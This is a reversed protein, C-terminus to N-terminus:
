AVIVIRAGCIEAAETEVTVVGGYSITAIFIALAVITGLASQVEAVWFGVDAGVHCPVADWLIGTKADKVDALRADPAHLVVLLAIVTVSTRWVVMAVLGRTLTYVGRRNRASGTLFNVRHGTLADDLCAIVARGTSVIGTFGVHPTDMHRNHLTSTRSIMLTIVTVSTSRICAAQVLTACAGIWRNVAIILVGAGHVVACHVFTALMFLPTPAAPIRAPDTPANGLSTVADYVDM